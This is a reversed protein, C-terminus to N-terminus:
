RCHQRARLRITGVGSSLPIRARGLQHSGPTRRSSRCGGQACRCSTVLDLGIQTDDPKAALAARQENIADDQRKHAIYFKILQARFAPENPYIEVLRRLVAEAQTLDGIRDFINIKLISIGLDDAHAGPVHSLIKLAAAPDGQSLTQVALVVNAEVNGPDLQLAQHATRVAADTDKLRLLAGSKLALIGANQPDLELAADTMKLAQDTANSLLYLRALRVRSEVDKPDLEVIRRLSGTLAQLNREHEDIQALDRWAQINNSKLQLANRLQLRAKVYDKAVLYSKGQQYYYDARLDRTGFKGIVFAAAGLVIAVALCSFIIIARKASSRRQKLPM